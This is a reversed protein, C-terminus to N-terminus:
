AQTGCSSFGCAAVGSARTSLAQARCYSFGDCQSALAGICLTAGSVAVLSPHSVAVFVWHLWLLYVFSIKLFTMGCYFCIYIVVTKTVYM